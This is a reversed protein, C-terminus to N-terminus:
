CSKSAFSGMAGALQVFYDVRVTGFFKNVFVVFLNYEKKFVQPRTRM